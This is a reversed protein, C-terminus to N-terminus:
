KDEMYKPISHGEENLHKKLLETDIVKRYGNNELHEAIPMLKDSMWHKGSSYSMCTMRGMRFFEIAMRFGNIYLIMDRDGRSKAEAELSEALNLLIESATGLQVDKSKLGGILDMIDESM